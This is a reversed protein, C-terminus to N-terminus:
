ITVRSIEAVIGAVLEYRRAESRSFTM